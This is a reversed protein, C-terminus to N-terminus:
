LDFEERIKIVYPFRPIEDGPTLNFYKITAKKSIIDDRTRLLEVLYERTGKINSNFRIGKHNEFVMAGAMGSRNGVGELVDLIVFESDQFEKRKLLTKSRKNEYKDDLRVMQGEYGNEIYDEYLLDITKKDFCSTTSVIRLSDNGLENLIESLKEIRKSFKLSTDVLDYVWYQINAKAHKIDTASPKTKKVISCISNFDNAFKDCYLEGDFVLDPYKEFVPALAEMVHPVSVLAKGGRSQLGFRTAICRIGDLKPQSYVPYKLPRKPDNKYDDYNKALMPEIFLQTDIDKVNEFYGSEKKKRWTATAEKLAQEEKSTVNAKDVNKSICTTWETTQLKGDQQGHITRYQDGRVEILWTQVAGTSTRSYLKPLIHRQM